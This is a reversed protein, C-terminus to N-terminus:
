NSSPKFLAVFAGFALQIFSGILELYYVFGGERAESTEDDDDDDNFEFPDDVDNVTDNQLEIKSSPLYNSYLTLKEPKKDNKKLGEVSLEEVDREELGNGIPKLDPKAVDESEDFSEIKDWPKKTSKTAPETNNKGFGLFRCFM